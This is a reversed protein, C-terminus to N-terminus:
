HIDKTYTPATTAWTTIYSENPGLQITYYTTAGALTAIQQGGKTITATNTASQRVYHTESVHGATYTFPSTGMTVPASIGVPNYGINSYVTSTNGTGADTITVGINNNITYNNSTGAAVTLTGGNFFNNSIIFNSYNAPITLTGSGSVWTNSEFTFKGTYSSVVGVTGGLECNNVSVWLGNVISLGASLVNDSIVTVAPATTSNCVISTTYFNSSFDSQIIHNEASGSNFTLGVYTSPAALLWTASADVINVLYNKLTPNSSGSTGSVSCQIAYGGSIVIQGATYPTFAAWNAYPQTSTPAIGTPVHDFKCRIYWNSGTSTVVANGYSESANVNEFYCDNGNVRLASAGGQILVDRVHGEVVDGGVTLTNNTAGFTGTDNNTGKGYISLKELGCRSGHMVVLAVDTHFAQLFTANTGAGILTVNANITIGSPLFYSGSPAYVTTGGTTPMASAANLASQFNASDDTVGDGICGYSRVDIWPRGSKFYFDGVDITNGAITGPFSVIGNYTTSSSYTNTGSWTNNGDLFPVVHGSTGTGPIVITPNGVVDILRAPSNVTSPPPLNIIQNSNMDLTANMMNPSTGDRSLTNDMATTIAVMNNNVTSVATTDNVFSSVPSLVVKDTM